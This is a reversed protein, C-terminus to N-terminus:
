ARYFYVQLTAAQKRAAAVEAEDIALEEQEYGEEDYAGDEEYINYAEDDPLEPQKNLLFRIEVMDIRDCTVWLYLRTNPRRHLLSFPHPQIVTSSSSEHLFHLDIWLFSDVNIHYM